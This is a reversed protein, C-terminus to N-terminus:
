KMRRIVAALNTIGAAQAEDVTEAMAASNVSREFVLVSTGV